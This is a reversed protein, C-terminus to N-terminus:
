RSLKRDQKVQENHLEEKLRAYEITKDENDQQRTVAASISQFNNVKLPFIIFFTIFCMLSLFIPCYSSFLPLSLILSGLPPLSLSFGLSPSLFLSPSPNPSHLLSLSPPPSLPHKRVWLELLCIELYSHVLGCGYYYISVPSHRTLCKLSIM